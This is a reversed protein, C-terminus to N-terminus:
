LCKKMSISLRQKGLRFGSTLAQNKALAQDLRETLEAKDRAAQEREHAVDKAWTGFRAEMTKLTHTVEGLKRYLDANEAALEGVARPLEHQDPDHPADHAQPVERVPPEDLADRENPLGDVAM